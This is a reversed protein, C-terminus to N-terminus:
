PVSRSFAGSFARPFRDHFPRPFAGGSWGMSSQSAAGCVRPGASPNSPGACNGGVLGPVLDVNTGAPRASGATAYIEIECITMLAQDGGGGAGSDLVITVHQGEAAGGCHSVEPEQSHDNLGGCRVGTSYDSSSSIYILASELRDQCCDTRHYVGVSDVTSFGGLDVQFWSPGSVSGTHSCSGGGWVTNRNGDIARDPEGGWGITSQSVAGCVRPGDDPGSPQGGPNSGGTCGGGSLQPVVNTFVATGTAGGGGSAPAAATSGHVKISSPQDNPFSSCCDFSGEHFERSWGTFDGNEYVTVVCSDGGTVVISSGDNDAAGHALFDALPYDGDSFQAQWGQYGGHQYMTASCTVGASAGACGVGNSLVSGGLHALTADNPNPTWSVELLSGGGHEYFSIVIDHMGAALNVTGSADRRGHDGDNSVVLTNDIYLMSGDDSSTQFTYDGGTAITIQGRWRMVYNDMEEFGEIEDVFAQDNSYWLEHTHEEHSVTSFLCCFTFTEIACYRLACAHNSVQRYSLKSSTGAAEGTPTWSNWVEDFVTAELNSLYQTGDNINMGLNDGPVYAEFYLGARCSGSGQGRGSSLTIGKVWQLM